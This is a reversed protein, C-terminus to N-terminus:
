GANRGFAYARNNNVIPIQNQKAREILKYFRADYTSEYSTEWIKEILDEKRLPTKSGQLLDCLVKLKGSVNVELQFEKPSQLSKVYTWFATKAESPDTCQFDPGFLGPTLELLRKWLKLAVDQDGSQLAVLLKWKLEYEPLKSLSSPCVGLSKRDRIAEIVGLDFDLRGRERNRERNDKEKVLIEHARDIKGARYFIDAAVASLAQRDPLSQSSTKQTSRKLARELHVCAEDYREFRSAECAMAREILIHESDTDALARAQDFYIRALKQHGLRSFDVMLNHLSIFRGRRDGVATYIEVARLNLGAAGEIDGLFFQASAMLFNKEGDLFSGAMFAGSQLRQTAEKWKSERFLRRADLLVREQVSLDQSDILSLFLRSDDALYATVAEQYKPYDARTKSM